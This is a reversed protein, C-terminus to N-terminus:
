GSRQNIVTYGTVISRGDAYHTWHWYVDEDEELQVSLLAPPSVPGRASPAQVTRKGKTLRDRSALNLNPSNSMNGSTQQHM